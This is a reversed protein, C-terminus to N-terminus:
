GTQLPQDLTVVRAPPFHCSFTSGRQLESNVQLVGDHRNLVHKVIALGLGTGGTDRSRNIDVRFFRETLRTLHTKAIGIGTDSVQCHAGDGDRHWRVRIEGRAPTYRVANFLLNSFASYLEQHNGLLGILPDAELSIQHTRDGSLTRAERCADQLLAAVAVTGQNHPESDSELRSIMLLDEVISRMRGAQQDISELAPLWGDPAQEKQDILAEVYGNVVTLPTRLEHSVNAVFDRRTQELTHIRTVDHAMLLYAGDGYPVIRLDLQQNPNVPSTISLSGSFDGADFYSRFTPLRLLNEVQIGHDETSRFGLYVAAAPNCWELRGGADMAVLADPLAAASDRFQQLQLLLQAERRRNLEQRRHLQDFINRWPGHGNPTSVARRSDLWQTLQQRQRIELGLAVALGVCLALLFQDIILGTLLSVLIIGTLLAYAKSDVPRNM